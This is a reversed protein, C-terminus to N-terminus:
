PLSPATPLDEVRFRETRTRLVTDGFGSLDVLFGFLTRTIGAGEGDDDPEPQPGDGAVRGRIWGDLERFEELTIPQIAVEVIAFYRHGAELDWRPHIELSRTSLHDLLESLRDFGDQRAHPPPHDLVFRREGPDWYVREAEVRSAIQKDFWRRRDRWVEVRTRITIPLGSEVSSRAAADLPELLSMETVVLGRDVRLPGLALSGASAPGPAALASLLGLGAAALLRPRRPRALAARRATPRIVRAPYM